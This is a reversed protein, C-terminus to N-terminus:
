LKELLDLEMTTSEEYYLIEITHHAPRDRFAAVDNMRKYRLCWVAKGANDRIM